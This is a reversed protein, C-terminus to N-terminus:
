SPRPGQLPPAIRKLLWDAFAPMPDIEVEMDLAAWGARPGIRVADKWTTVVLDANTDQVARHVAELDRPTFHHHDHFAMERVVMWGQARLASFFREPRAVAALAVIRTGSGQTGGQAAIASHGDLPKLAGYRRTLRFATSLGLRSGVRAAEDSSGAVLVADAMRGADIPERLPGAPLVQADLDSPEVILLNTERALQLHQFGDDLLHVTCAFHREALRGALYRDPSVLVPVGTLQTALMLPEDGSEDLGARVREGDSVVVVGDHVRRRGYGRTLISPVHGHQRLLRAIYAVVPTKGSGGVVLNGVSIVPRDLRRVAQPHSAYWSRRLRAVGGYVASLPNL